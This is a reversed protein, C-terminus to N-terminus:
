QLRIDSVEVDSGETLPDAVVKVTASGKRNGAIVQVSHFPQWDVNERTLDNRQTTIVDLRLAAAQQPTMDPKLRLILDANNMSNALNGVIAFQSYDAKPNAGNGNVEVVFQVPRGAHREFEFSGARVCLTGPKDPLGPRLTEGSFALINQPYMNGAWISGDGSLANTVPYRVLDREQTFMMATEVGLQIPGTGILGSGLPGTPFGIVGRDVDIAGTFTKSDDSKWMVTGNIHLIVPKPNSVPADVQIQWGGWEDRAGITSDATLTIPSVATKGQWDGYLTGGNLVLPNELDRPMWLTGGRDVRITPRNNDTGLPESVSIHLGDPVIGVDHATSPVGNAHDATEWDRPNSWNMKRNYVDWPPFTVVLHYDTAFCARGVAFAGLAFAPVCAQLVLRFVRSFATPLSQQM